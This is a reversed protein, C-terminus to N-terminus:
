FIDKTILKEHAGIYMPTNKTAFITARIYDLMLTRKMEGAGMELLIRDHCCEHPTFLALLFACVVLM